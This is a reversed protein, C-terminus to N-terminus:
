TYMCASERVCVSVPTKQSTKASRPMCAYVYIYRYMYIHIDMYM